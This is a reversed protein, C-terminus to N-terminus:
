LRLFEIWAGTEALLARWGALELSLKRKMGPSLGERDGGKEERSMEAALALGPKM